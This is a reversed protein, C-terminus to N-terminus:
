ERYYDYIEIEYLGEENDAPQIIIPGYKDVFKILDDVEVIWVKEGEKITGRYNGESLKVVDRCMKMFYDYNYETSEWYNHIVGEVAEEIPKEDPWISTRSVIYKM